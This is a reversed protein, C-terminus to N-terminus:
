HATLIPIGNVSVYTQIATCFYRYLTLPHTEGVLISTLTSSFTMIYKNDIFLEASADNLNVIINKFELVREM